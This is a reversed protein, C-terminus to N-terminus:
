ARRPCPSPGRRRAHCEPRCRLITRRRRRSGSSGSPAEDHPRERAGDRATRRQRGQHSGARDVLALLDRKALELRDRLAADEGLERALLARHDNGALRSLKEGARDGVAVADIDDCVGLVRKARQLSRRRADDKAVQEDQLRGSAGLELSMCLLVGVAEAVRAIVSLSLWVISQAIDFALQNRTSRGVACGRLLRGLMSVSWETRPRPSGAPVRACASRRCTGPSRRHGTVAVLRGRLEADQQAPGRRVGDRARELVLRRDRHDTGTGLAVPCRRHRCVHRQMHELGRRRRTDCLGYSAQPLDGVRREDERSVALRVPDDLGPDGDPCGVDEHERLRRLRQQERDSLGCYSGVSSRDPFTTVTNEGFPPLPLVANAVFRAAAVAREPTSVSRTSRSRCNPSEASVSATEGRAVIASRAAEAPAM